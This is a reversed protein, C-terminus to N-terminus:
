RAVGGMGDRERAAGARRSLGNDDHTQALKIASSRETSAPVRLIDRPNPCGRNIDPM